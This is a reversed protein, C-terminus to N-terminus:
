ENEKEELKEKKKPDPLAYEILLLAVYIGIILNKYELAYGAYPIHFLYTGIVRDQELTTLDITDNADGKTIYGDEVVEKVRHVVKNKYGADYFAIIDGSEAYTDATNIFVVSAIPITPEMSGSLITYPKVDVLGVLNYVGTFTVIIITAITVIFSIIKKPM